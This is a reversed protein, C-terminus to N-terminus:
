LLFVVILLLIMAIFIIVKGKNADRCLSMLIFVVIALLLEILIKTIEM